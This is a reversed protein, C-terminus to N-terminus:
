GHQDCRVILEHTNRNSGLQDVNSKTDVFHEQRQTLKENSFQDVLSTRTDNNDHDIDFAGYEDTDIKNTRDVKDTIGIGIKYCFTIM